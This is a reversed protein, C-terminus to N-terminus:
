FKAAEQGAIRGFIVFDAVANGGLRNGGHIGGTVEGAAYLGPIVSNDGKLVRTHSDIKLGGMTHHVGATVKIAYFPAKDLPQAFSTRGFESDKRNAVYENWTKMTEAFADAPINIEKALEEYTNGQKTYGRSIYGKIVSSADSMKTDIILWSFSGPQAIEAASVADRTS